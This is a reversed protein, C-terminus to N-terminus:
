DTELREVSVLLQQAKVPTPKDVVVPMVPVCLRETIGVVLLALLLVLALM